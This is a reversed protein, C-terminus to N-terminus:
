LSAEVRTPRRGGNASAIPAELLSKLAAKVATSTRERVLENVALTPAIRPKRKGDEEFWFVDELGHAIALSRDWACKPVVREPSLHMAIHAWDYKGAALEDWKNKLEKQWPKHQPVLRWLPAMTLTVGDDLTPNWLPAVHKIEELLARLEEVFAEQAAIEKREKATPNAGASQMFSRLLREEHSLKPAVVDNQIQFFSDRNMRHAYLWVSYRGTPVALQWIIPAKRRSKSYRKLHHEFFNSALWVRLDHDKPDLLTTIENWWEDASARFVEDFVVRVATTLDRAHGPDDVMIGNEPFAMPYGAPASTLPVGEDGALMGPSSRPLPHFPEPEKPLPRVGTALRLDFRGFAVGVAWSVLQAALLVADFSYATDDDIESDAESDDDAPEPDECMANSFGNSISRQDAEDIGYLEFCRRDIETQLAARQLEIARVHESWVATRVALTDGMMQLLAPMTFAHSTEIRTDLSRKISWARRALGALAAAESAIIEPFPTREVLGVEFKIRVADSQVRSLVTMVSANFLALLTGLDSEPVFAAKGSQSFVCGSPLAAASFTASRHPWTLGARFYYSYGNLVATWQDGWGNRSRVASANAKLESGNTAWKLVLHVDAYFPSNSGGKAFPVWRASDNQLEFWVRVFRVDDLTAAGHKAKREDSKFPPLETYVKRLRESVWYSFPSRPVSAFTAVDVDFRQQPRAAEPERIAARLAAAKDDAELARLFITKM